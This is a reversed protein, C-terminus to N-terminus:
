QTAPSATDAPPPEDTEVRLSQVNSKAQELRVGPINLEVINSHHVLRDIAAATTM